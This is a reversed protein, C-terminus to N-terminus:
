RPPLLGSREIRAFTPRWVTMSSLDENGFSLRYTRFFLYRRPEVTIRDWPVFFPRSFPAFIRWMAVRLGGRCIDFRLCSGYNVTGWPNWVSGQGLMGSRFHLRDVPQEERDPFREQLARWGSFWWLVTTVLLWMGIFFFPFIAVFATDNM